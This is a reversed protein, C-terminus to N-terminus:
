VVLQEPMRIFDVDNSNRLGSILSEVECADASGVDYDRVHMPQVHFTELETAGHALLIGHMM